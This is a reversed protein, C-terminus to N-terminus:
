IPPVRQYNGDIRKITHAVANQFTTAALIGGYITIVGATSITYQGVMATDVVGGNASYFLSGNVEQIPWLQAPLVTTSRPRDGATNVPMSAIAYNMSWLRVEQTDSVYFNLTMPTPTAGGGTTFLTTSHVYPQDTYKIAGRAYVISDM